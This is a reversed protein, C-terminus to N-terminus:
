LHTPSLLVSSLSEPPHRSSNPPTPSVHLIASYWNIDVWNMIIQTLTIIIRSTREIDYDKQVVFASMDAHFSPLLNGQSNASHNDSQSRLIIRCIIYLEDVFVYLSSPMQTAYVQVSHSGDGCRHLIGIGEVRGNTM